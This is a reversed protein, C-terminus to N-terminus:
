EKKKEGRKKKKEKEERGRKRGKSGGGRGERREESRAENWGARAVTCFPQIPLAPRARISRVDRRRQPLLSHTREVAPEPQHLRRDWSGEGPYTQGASAGQSWHRQPRCHM